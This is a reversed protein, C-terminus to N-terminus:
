ISPLLWEGDPRPDVGSTSRTAPKLQEILNRRAM